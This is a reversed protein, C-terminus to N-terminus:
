KELINDPMAEKNKPLYDNILDDDQWFELDFTLIVKNKM